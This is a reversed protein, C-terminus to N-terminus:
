KTSKDLSSLLNKEKLYKYASSQKKCLGFAYEIEGNYRAIVAEDFDVYNGLFHHKYNIMIFARWIKDRESWCVGTVGSKNTVRKKSNISNCQTTTHRLNSWKNNLPNGDIHDIIYEPCYGEMYLWALRHAKYTKGDVSISIDGRKTIKGAKQGKKVTSRSQLWVFNGILPHYELLEKLRKQSLKNTKLM